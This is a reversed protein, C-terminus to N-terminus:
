LFHSAVSNFARRAKILTAKVVQMEINYNNGNADKALVDLRVAKAEISNDIFRQVAVSAIKIDDALFAQLVSQCVEEDEMVRSFVFDNTITLREFQEIIEKETLSAELEEKSM